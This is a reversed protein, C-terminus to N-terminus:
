RPLNLDEDQSAILLLFAYISFKSGVVPKM